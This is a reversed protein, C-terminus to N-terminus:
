KRRSSEDPEDCRMVNIREGEEDGCITREKRLFCSM